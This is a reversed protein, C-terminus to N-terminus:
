DLTPSSVVSTAGDAPSRLSPTAPSRCVTPELVFLGLRTDSVAVLGSAYYPYSNFAGPRDNADGTPHMDFFATEDLQGLAVRSLSLMRYGAESNAQHLENGRVVLSSDSAQTLATHRAVLTPADLDTLDWVYTRTDHGHVREDARDAQLYHRHDDTLWGQAVSGTDSYQLKAVVRPRAKDQVDVITAWEQRPVICVERGRYSVDPGRYVVCQADLTAPRNGPEVFCGASAPQAADELNLMRLDCGGGALYAFGTEENVAISRSLGFGTHFATESLVQPPATVGRLGTLHFVQMGPLSPRVVYLHDRFVRLRPNPFDKGEPTPLIGLYSVADPDTLDVFAVGKSHGVIAFERGTQSDTWGWVEGGAGDIGGLAPLSLPAVLDVEECLYGLARGNECPVVAAAARQAALVVFLAPLLRRRM